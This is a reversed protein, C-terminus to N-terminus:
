YVDEGGREIGPRWEFLGGESDRKERLPFLAALRLCRTSHLRHSHSHRPDYTPNSWIVEDKEERPM